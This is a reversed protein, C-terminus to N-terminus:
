LFSERYLDDCKVCFNDLKCHASLTKVICEPCVWKSHNWISSCSSCSWEASPLKRLGSHTLSCIDCIWANTQISALCESKERVLNSLFIREKESMPCHDVVINFVEGM